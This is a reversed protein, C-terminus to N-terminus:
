EINTRTQIKNYYIYQFSVYVINFMKSYLVREFTYSLVKRAYMWMRITPSWYLLRFM